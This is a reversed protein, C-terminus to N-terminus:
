DMTAWEKVQWKWCHVQLHRGREAALAGVYAPAPTLPQLLWHAPAQSDGIMGLFRTPQGPILSVEIRSLSDGIGCGIAKLCAEKRTWCNFFAEMRQSHPVSRWDALERQSFYREAFSEAGEITRFHELDVGVEHERAVAYVALSGAHALNFCLSQGSAPEALAPKGRAAYSFALRNSEVRLLWGLLERLLGRSAVFRARDKNFRFREARAREDESLALALHALRSADLDLSACFVHIEETGPELNYPAPAWKIESEEQPALATM